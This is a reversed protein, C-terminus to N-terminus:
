YTRVLRLGVSNLSSGSYLSSRYSINCGFNLSNWSGGRLVRNSDVYIDWCWEWVNGSMDYIGLENPKKYGVSHTTNGSNDRHWAVEEIYNSGSYEYGKSKNGGKAAYEWEAETPLRYGKGGVVSVKANLINNEDKEIIIIDYYEPLRSKISLKNCYMLADYWTVKEVPRNIDRFYSPNLGMIEEFDKQKVEYKGIYYSDTEGREVLVMNNEAKSKCGFVLLFLM